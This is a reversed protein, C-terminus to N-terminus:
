LGRAGFVRPVTRLLIKVDNWLSWNTVYLYDLVVMESLPVRSSGLVQWHGTIGPTLHLRRRYWGEVRQDEEQVLPRPGVLSMEGRLVNLLQPLEDLSTRRLWRGVRTIRPDEAIKFFGEAGENRDLLEARRAEADAGMTRFKWMCFERGDRGVRRQGFLVSGRSDLVVALAVLVLLPSALLLGLGSGVLDLSRKIFRSSYTLGLPRVGLLTLGGVDDFAVSSGVVEFLRPLISVRVGLAKVMRILDLVDDSTEESPAIVVRDVGLDTVRAALDDISGAAPMEPTFPESPGHPIWGVVTAKVAPSAALKAELKAAATGPGVVLVREEDAVRRALARAAVRAALLALFTGIWLEVAAGRPLAHAFMAPGLLLSMMAVLTAVEFLAPAEDLSRKNLVLDDRDYLGIVKGLLVIAPLALVALPQPSVDQTLALLGLVATAVLVDAAALLRPFVAERQRLRDPTAAETVPLVDAPVFSESEASRLLLPVKSGYRRGATAVRPHQKREDM